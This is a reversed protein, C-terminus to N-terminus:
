LSQRSSIGVRSVDISQFGIKLAPSKPQLRFDKEKPAVFLPNTLISNRDNGQERWKQLSSNGFTLEKADPRADFYVNWDMLFNTGSWDGALLTGSDFYIINTQFSFSTHPENRTRQLQQDRGFAFINNWVTNTEGYHQHFGGHTTRYVINSAAL